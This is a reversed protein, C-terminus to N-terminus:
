NPNKNNLYPYSCSCCVDCEPCDKCTCCANNDLEVSNIFKYFSLSCVEDEDKYSKLSISYYYKGTM